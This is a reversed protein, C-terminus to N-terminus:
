FQTTSCCDLKPPSSAQPIFHLVGSVLAARSVLLIFLPVM